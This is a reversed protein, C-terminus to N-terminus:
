HKWGRCLDPALDALAETAKPGAVNINLNYIPDNLQMAFLASTSTDDEFYSVETGQQKGMMERLTELQLDPFASLRVIRLDGINQNPQSNWVSVNHATSPTYTVQKLAKHRDGDSERISQDVTYQRRIDVKIEATELGRAVAFRQQHAPQAFVLSSFQASGPARDMFAMMVGDAVIEHQLLPAVAPLDHGAAKLASGNSLVEVRLHPLMTVLDSRLYFGYAPMQVLHDMGEPTRGIYDNLAKKIAVRDEDTGFHNGLSLAGDILADVWNRDIHFFRLSEEELYSPDPLPCHAPVGALFMRDVLWSLVTM